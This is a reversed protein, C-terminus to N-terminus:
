VAPTVFHQIEMIIFLAKQQLNIKRVRYQLRFM